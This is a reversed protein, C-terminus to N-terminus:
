SLGATAAGRSDGANTTSLLPSPLVSRRFGLFGKLGTM